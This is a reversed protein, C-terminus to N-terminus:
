KRRMMWGSWLCWVALLGTLFIWFYTASNGCYIRGTHVELAVNWLSMPLHRLSAPQPLADTGTGYGVVHPRRGIDTSYGSVAMAGFPSGRKGTLPLGTFYDCVAGSARDWVTMGSFSGCLWHGAEDREWVNIGMVSIAPANDIKAPIGDLGPLSFFGDATFLLWDGQSEDYRLARLKDHWPAEKVPPPTKSLVLPVMLPPRLCWGTICALLTLVLTARGIQNHWRFTWRLTRRSREGLRKAFKPMLWCMVGTVALFCLVLAIADMVLKGVMGFLEGSHLRWVTKFLTVRTDLGVPVAVNVRVLSPLEGASGLVGVYLHSRGVVVLTDGRLTLDSLREESETPVPIEAWAADQNARTFLGFQSAAFLRGDSTQAVARVSRRDAGTPLGQNFDVVVEGDRTTLWVGGAGYILVSDGGLSLTGRLLGGNWATFRYWPPLVRRSVNVDALWPRHNLVIGSLCFLVLFVCLVIGTWKHHLRWTSRKM